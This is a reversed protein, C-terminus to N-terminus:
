KSDKETQINEFDGVSRSFRTDAELGSSRREREDQGRGGGRRRSDLAKKRERRRSMNKIISLDCVGDGLVFSLRSSARHVPSQVPGHGIGWRGIVKMQSLLRLRM